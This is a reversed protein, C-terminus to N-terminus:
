LRATFHFKRMLSGFCLQFVQAVRRRIADVYHQCLTESDFVFVRSTLVLANMAVVMYVHVSAVRSVHEKTQGVVGSWYMPPKEETPGVVLDCDINDDEAKLMEGMAKYVEEHNQMVTFLSHKLLEEKPYGLVNEFEDNVALIRGDLAAIGLPATCQDFVSNYDLGQVFLMDADNSLNSGQEEKAALPTPLADPEPTQGSNVMESTQRITDILKRHEADLMIARAQLQKVYEAVSLLISYKNPKFPVHSETLVSRLEKIQASIKHSRQQERMNREWRKQQDATMRNWNNPRRKILDDEDKDHSSAATSMSVVSPPHQAAAYGPIAAASSVIQPALVQMPQTPMIYQQQQLQTTSTSPTSNVGTMDMSVVSANQQGGGMTQLAATAPQAFAAAAAFYQQQSPDMYYQQQQQQMMASPDQQMAGALVQAAIGAGNEADNLILGASATLQDLVNNQPLDFTSLDFMETNGGNTALPQQGQMTANNMPAIPAGAAGGNLQQNAGRAPTEVSDPSPSSGVHYDMTTNNSKNVNKTRELSIIVGSPHKEKIVIRWM